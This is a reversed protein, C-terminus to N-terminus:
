ATIYNRTIDACCCVQQRQVSIKVAYKVHCTIQLLDQGNQSTNSEYKVVSVSFIDPLNSINIGRTSNVQVLIYTKVNFLFRILFYM